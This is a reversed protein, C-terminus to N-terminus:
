ALLEVVGMVDHCSASVRRCLIISTRANIRVLDISIRNRLGFFRIMRSNCFIFGNLKGGEFDAGLLDASAFKAGTLNANRFVTAICRAETLTISKMQASDFSARTVDARYLHSKELNVIQEVTSSHIHNGFYTDQQICICM